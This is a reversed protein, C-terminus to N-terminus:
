PAGFVCVTQESGPQRWVVAVQAPRRPLVFLWATGPGPEGTPSPEAVLTLVDVGEEETTFWRLGGGHDTPPVLVLVWEHEFDCPPQAAAALHWDSVVARWESPSAIRVCRVVRSPPAGCREVRLVPLLAADVGPASPGTAACAAGVVAIARCLIRM